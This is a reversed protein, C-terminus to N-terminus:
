FKYLTTVLLSQYQNDLHRKETVLPKIEKMITLILLGVTLTFLKISYEKMQNKAKFDPSGSIDLKKKILQSKDFNSRKKRM